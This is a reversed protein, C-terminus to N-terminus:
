QFEVVNQHLKRYAMFTGNRSFDLPMAAGAIEQAEDPYGLLFEGAKLRAGIELATSHEMGTSQNEM